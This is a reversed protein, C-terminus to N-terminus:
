LAGRERKKKDKSKDQRLVRDTQQGETSISRIATSDGCLYNLESTFHTKFIRKIAPVFSAFKEKWTPIAFKQNSFIQVPLHFLALYEKERTPPSISSKLDSMDSM